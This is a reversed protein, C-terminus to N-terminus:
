GRRLMRWLRWRLDGLRRNFRFLWPMPELAVEGIRTEFPVYILRVTATTIDNAEVHIDASVVNTISSGTEEDIVHTNPGTGDSIIKLRGMEVRGNRKNGAGSRECRPSVWM